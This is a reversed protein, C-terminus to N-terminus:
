ASKSPTARTKQAQPGAVTPSDQSRSPSVSQSFHKEDCALLQRLPNLDFQQMPEFQVYVTFSEPFTRCHLSWIRM